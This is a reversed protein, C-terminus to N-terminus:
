DQVMFISATREKSVDTDYGLLYYKKMNMGTLGL